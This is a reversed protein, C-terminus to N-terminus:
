RFSQCLNFLYSIVARPGTLWFSKIKGAFAITGNIFGELKGIAYLFLGLSMCFLLVAFFAFSLRDGDNTVALYVAFLCSAFSSIAGTILSHYDTWKM